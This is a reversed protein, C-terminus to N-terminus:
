RRERSAGGGGPDPRGGGPRLYCGAFSAHTGSPLRTRTRTRTRTRADRAAPGRDGTYPRSGERDGLRRGLPRRAGQRRRGPPPGGEGLATMGPRGAGALRRMSGTSNPRPLRRTQLRPCPAIRDCPWANLSPTRWCGRRTGRGQARRAPLAPKPDLAAEARTRWTSPSSRASAPLMPSPSPSPSPDRRSAADPEVVARRPAQNVAHSVRWKAGVACSGSSTSGEHTATGVAVPMM